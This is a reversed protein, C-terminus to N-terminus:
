IDAHQRFQRLTRARGALDGCADLRDPDNVAQIAQILDAPLEGFRGELVRLLLGVKGETKGERQGEARAQATWENVIQSETVNWRRLAERWAQGCGAKEAFVQALGLARRKEPDDEDRALELWRGIIGDEAGGQMLPVFVLALRPDSRTM